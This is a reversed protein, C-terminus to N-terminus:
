PLGGGGFGGVGGYGSPGGYNYNLYQGASPAALQLQLRRRWDWQSGFTTASSLLSTAAGMIPSIDGASTRAGQASVNALMAQNRLDTAGMRQNAAARVTNANMQNVDLQKTLEESAAVEQASGQGLQIGRGATSATTAAEQQGARMTYQQVQTKGAELTGQAQYEATRSNIAAMDSQYQYNQATAQQQYQASKAAYFSGIAQNAAGFAMGLMGSNAITAATRAAKAQNVDMGTTDATTKGNLGFFRQVENWSSSLLNPRPAPYAGGSYAPDDPTVFPVISPDNYPDV